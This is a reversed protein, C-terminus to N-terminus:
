RRQVDYTIEIAGNPLATQGHLALGIDTSVAPTLQLGGGLLLPLM